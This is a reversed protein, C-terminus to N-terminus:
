QIIKKLESVGIQCSPWDHSTKMDFEGKVPSKYAFYEEVTWYFCILNEKNSKISGVKKLIM